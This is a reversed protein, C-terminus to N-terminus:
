RRYPPRFPKWWSTITSFTGNQSSPSFISRWLSHAIGAECFLASSQGSVALCRFGKDWRRKVIIVINESLKFSFDDDSPRGSVNLITLLKSQTKEKKQLFSSGQMPVQAHSKPASSRGDVTGAFDFAGNRANQNATGYFRYRAGVAVSNARGGGCV